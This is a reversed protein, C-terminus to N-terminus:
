DVRKIRAGLNQLKEDIQEYGRDIQEINLIESTGKACLAALVLAMGARIDPSTVQEGHLRSPGIVVARHPDCLIIKAGMAILKDVFYLRSEFMKEFFLVTGRAQTAVVLAISMLDAPFGPWPADDIKPVAGDMDPTITMEQEAPVFIDEGRIEVKVGLREFVLLSMRMNEPVAKRILIQGRTVAALGIFSGVEIHDSPIEFETGHLREVGEIVLTNSGIGSIRAGMQNLCRALDQVHPESAANRIVTTGRALVAAMLANETGTVSTEDLLIDAGHLSPTKLYYRANTDVEAGMAQFALFHTDLRRRGIVDGGPPALRVEGCRALMPGALLISARIRRCLDERLSTKVIRSARLTVERENTFNVEVGLDELLALMTHVDGIRPLNRIVVPEDTLLSAALIPLAANKNGSPTIEGELPHGGEIVFKGM